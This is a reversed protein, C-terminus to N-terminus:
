APAKAGPEPEPARAMLSQGLDVGRARLRRVYFIMLFAYLFLAMCGWQAPTLDAYRTDGGDAQPVRLFDMAFRVPAYALGSAIVYTGIPLRRRWTLAFSAALVITFLLELFGLDFRPDHGQIFEIFGFHTVTGDGPHRPYAVALLTDATTRAGPHDHVSACGARGFMWGIPFVSLVLDAFPLIPAPQKRRHPWVDDVVFYKWLVIGVVAGIFGGFSSLGEWLMFVSWPRRVVEDWHYFLQDLVHSLVFASVLMWTVFSNLQAVDYGLKQARRATISTGVLVGTAVLIGFPHLPLPGIHLDPIHIYPVM